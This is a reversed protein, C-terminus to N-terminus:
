APSSGADLLPAIGRAGVGVKALIVIKLYKIALNNDEFVSGFDGSLM